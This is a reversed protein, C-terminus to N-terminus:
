IPNLEGTSNIACQLHINCQLLIQEHSSLWGDGVDWMGMGLWRVVGQGQYEISLVWIVGGM